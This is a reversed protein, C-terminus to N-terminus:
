MCNCNRMDIHISPQNSYLYFDNYLCPRFHSDSSSLPPSTTPSFFFRHKLSFFRERGPTCTTVRISVPRERLNEFDDLHFFFFLTRPVFNHFGTPPWKQQLTRLFLRSINGERPSFDLPSRRFRRSRRPVRRRFDVSRAEDLTTRGFIRPANARRGLSRPM